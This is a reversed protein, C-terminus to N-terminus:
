PAKEAAAVQPVCGPEILGRKAAEAAAESARDFVIMGAFRAADRPEEGVRRIFIADVRSGIRERAAAYIEPDKEGSDGVFVLRHLPLSRAIAEIRPTKFAVADKPGGDFRRLHLASRPFGKQELFRDLRPFFGVPSGTVFHFAPSGKKALCQYFAAMGPVARQTTEDELLATQVLKRKHTVHTLAVTDDFDSVVSLGTAPVILVWGKGGPGKEAGEVAALAVRSGEAFPEDGSPVEVEFYGEDDAKALVSRGDVTLTLKAGPYEDVAVIARLNKSLRTSGHDPDARLVRGSLTVSQPTGVAPFLWVVPAPAKASAM